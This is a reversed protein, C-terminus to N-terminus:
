PYLVIMVRRNAFAAPDAQKWALDQTVQWLAPWLEPFIRMNPSSIARVM